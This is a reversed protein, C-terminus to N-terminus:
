NGKISGPFLGHSVVLDAYKSQAVFCNNALTLCCVEPVPSAVMAENALCESVM